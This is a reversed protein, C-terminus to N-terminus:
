NKNDYIKRKDSRSALRHYLTKICNHQDGKCIKASNTAGGECYYNGNINEYYPCPYVYNNQKKNPFKRPKNKGM